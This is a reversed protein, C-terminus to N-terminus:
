FAAVPAMLSVLSSARHKLEEFFVDYDYGDRPKGRCFIMMNLLADTSVVHRLRAMENVTRFKHYEVGNRTKWTPTTERMYELGHEILKKESEPSLRKYDDRLVYKAVRSVTYPTIIDDVVLTKESELTPLRSDYVLTSKDFAVKCNAIDFSSLQKKTDGTFAKVIQVTVHTAGLRLSGSPLKNFEIDYNDCTGTYSKCKRLARHKHRFLVSEVDSEFKALSRADQFFVDIDGRNCYVHNYTIGLLTLREQANAHMFKAFGGAVYAGHQIACDIVDVLADYYLSQQQLLAKMRDYYDCGFDSVFVNDIM